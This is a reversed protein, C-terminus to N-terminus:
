KQQIIILLLKNEKCPCEIICLELSLDKGYACFTNLNWLAERLLTGLNELSIYSELDLISGDHAFKIMWLSSRDM